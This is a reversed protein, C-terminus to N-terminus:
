RALVQWLRIILEQADVNTRLSSGFGVLGIQVVTGRGLHYGVIAPANTTAGASSSAGGPVEVATYPQYAPYGQFTGSSGFINLGDKVTGILGSPGSVLQGPRAGLM